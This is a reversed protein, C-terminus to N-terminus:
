LYGELVLGYDSYVSVHCAPRPWGPDLSPQLWSGLVLVGTWSAFGDAGARADGAEMYVYYHEGPTLGKCSVTVSLDYVWDSNFATLKVQGSARPELSTASLKCSANIKGGAALAPSPALLASILLLVVAGGIAAGTKVIRQSKM